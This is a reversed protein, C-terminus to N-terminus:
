LRATAWLSRRWTTGSPPTGGLMELCKLTGAAVAPALPMESKGSAPPSAALSLRRWPTGTIVDVRGMVGCYEPTGKGHEGVFGVAHSDDVMVLADFEDALDCIGKLNAIYGDM